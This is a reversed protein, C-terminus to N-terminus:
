HTKKIDRQWTKTKEIKHIKSRNEQRNYKKKKKENKVIQRYEHTEKDKTAMNRCKMGRKYEEKM